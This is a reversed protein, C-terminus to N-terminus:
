TASFEAFSLGKSEMDAEWAKPKSICEEWPDTILVLDDGYFAEMACWHPVGVFVELVLSFLLPSLVSGQLM